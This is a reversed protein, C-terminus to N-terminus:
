KSTPAYSISPLGWPHGAGRAELTSPGLGYMRAMTEADVGYLSALGRLAAERERIKEDAFKIQNEAGLQGMMSAKGRALEDALEGYGADNRTAATRRNASEQLSDFATAAPGMTSATIAAQTAPDYGPAALMSKYGAMAPAGAQAGLANYQGAVQNTLALNTDAAQRQGRAM